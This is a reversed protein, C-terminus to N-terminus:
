DFLLFWIAGITKNRKQDQARTTVDTDGSLRLDCADASQLDFCIGTTVHSFAFRSLNKLCLRKQM